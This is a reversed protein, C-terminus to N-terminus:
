ANATAEQLASKAKKAELMQGYKMVLGFNTWLLANPYNAVENNYAMTGVFWMIVSCFVIGVFNKGLPDDVPARLYIRWCSLLLHLVAGYLLAAGVIGNEQTINLYTNHVFTPRAGGLEDKLGEYQRRDVIYQKTAEEANGWGVGFLLNHRIVNVATRMFIIRISATDATMRQGFDGSLLMPTFALAAIGTTVLLGAFVKRNRVLFIPALLLLVAFSIYNNRTYTFFIAGACGISLCVYFAKSIARKTCHFLHLSLFAVPVLLQACHIPSRFPGVARGAGVDGWALGIDVGFILSYMSKGAFHEYWLSTSIVAASVALAVLIKRIDNESNVSAKTLFYIFPWVGVQFVFMKLFNPSAQGRVFISLVIYAVFLVLSSEGWTLMRLKTRNALLRLVSVVFLFFFVMGDFTIINWGGSSKQQLLYTSYPSVVIWVLLANLPSRLLFILGITGLVLTAILFYQENLIARALLYECFMFLVIGFLVTLVRALKPWTRFVSRQMQALRSMRTGSAGAVLAIAQAVGRAVMRALRYFTDRIKRM